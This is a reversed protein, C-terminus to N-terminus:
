TNYREAAGLYIFRVYGRASKTKVPARRPHAMCGCCCSSYAHAYPLFSAHMTYFPRTKTSFLVSVRLSFVDDYLFSCTDAHAHHDCACGRLTHGLAALSLVTRPSSGRETGKLVAFHTLAGAPPLCSAERRNSFLHWALFRAGGVRVRRRAYLEHLAVDKLSMCSHSLM